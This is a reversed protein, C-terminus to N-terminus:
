SPNVDFRCRCDTGKQSREPICCPPGTQVALLIAKGCADLELFVTIKLVTEELSQKSTLSIMFTLFSNGKWLIACIWFIRFGPNSLLSSLWTAVSPLYFSVSFEEELGQIFVQKEEDCTEINGPFFLVM